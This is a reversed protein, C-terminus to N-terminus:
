EVETVAFAATEGGSGDFDDDDGRFDKEAPEMESSPDRAIDGFM